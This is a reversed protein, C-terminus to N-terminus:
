GTFGGGRAVDGEAGADGPLSEAAAVRGAALGVLRDSGSAEGGDGVATRSYM